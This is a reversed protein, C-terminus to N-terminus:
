SVYGETHPSFSSLRGTSASCIGGARVAGRRPAVQAPPTVSSPGLSGLAGALSADYRQDPRVVHRALERSVTSPARGIHRTIARTSHRTRMLM